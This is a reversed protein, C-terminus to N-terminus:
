YPSPQARQKAYAVLLNQRVKCYEHVTNKFRALEEADSFLRPLLAAESCGKYESLRNGVFVSDHDILQGDVVTPIFLPMSTPTTEFLSLLSREGKLFDIVETSPASDAAHELGQFAVSANPASLADTHSLKQEQAFARAQAIDDICM